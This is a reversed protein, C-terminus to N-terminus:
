SCRAAWEEAEAGEERAAPAPGSDPLGATAAVALVWKTPGDGTTKFVIAKLMRDPKVKMFKGVEDIGPLNPTHVETLEGTPAGGLDHPRHTTPVDGRTEDCLPEQQEALPLGPALRYTRKVVLTTRPKEPDRAWELSGVSCPILSVTLM